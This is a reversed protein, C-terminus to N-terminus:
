ECEELKATLHCRLPIHPPYGQGGSRTSRDAAERNTEEQFSEKRSNPRCFTGASYRGRKEVDYSKPLASIRATSRQTSSIGRLHDGRPWRIGRGPRPDRDDQGAILPPLGRKEPRQPPNRSHFPCLRFDDCFDLFHAGRAGPKVRVVRGTICKRQPGAIPGPLTGLQPTAVLWPYKSLLHMKVISM